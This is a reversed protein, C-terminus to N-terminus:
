HYPMDLLLKIDHINDLGRSQSAFFEQFCVVDPDMEKILQFIEQRTKESNSWNYLDFLRVNFSVVKIQSSKGIEKEFSGDMGGFQVVLPLKVLSISLASLPILSFKRNVFFWVTFVVTNLLVLPIFVLGTISIFWWSNPDAYGSLASGITALSIAVTSLKSLIRFLKM